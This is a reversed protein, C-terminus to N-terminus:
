KRRIVEVVDRLRETARTAAKRTADITLGLREAQEALAVGQSAWVVLDRDRPLLLDLAKTVLALDERRQAFTRPGIETALPTFVGSRTLRLVAGGHRRIAFWHDRRAHLHRRAIQAMWARFAEEGRWEFRDLMRLATQQMGLVLDEVSEFRLLATGAEDRAISALYPSAAVVLDRASAPADSM